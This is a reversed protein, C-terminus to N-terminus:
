MSSVYHTMIPKTNRFVFDALSQGLSIRRCSEVFQNTGFTQGKSKTCQNFPVKFCILMGSLRGGLM